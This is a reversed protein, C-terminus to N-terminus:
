LRSEVLHDSINILCFIDLSGDTETRAVSHSIHDPTSFIYINTSKNAFSQISDVYLTGAHMSLRTRSKTVGHVTARWAGRAM